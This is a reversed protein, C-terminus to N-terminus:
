GERLVDILEDKNMMSYGEVGRERALEVLQGKTRGEYPGTGTDVEETEEEETEEEAEPSALGLRDRVKQAAETQGEAEYTELNKRLRAERADEQVKVADLVEQERLAQIEEPTAM